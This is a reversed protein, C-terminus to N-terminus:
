WLCWIVAHIGMIWVFSELFGGTRIALANNPIWTLTDNGQQVRLAHTSNPSDLQGTFKVTFTMKFDEERGLYHQYQTSNMNVSGSFKLEMTTNSVSGEMITKEPWFFDTDHQLCSGARLRFLGDYQSLRPSPSQVTSANFHVADSTISESSVDLVMTNSANTRSVSGRTTTIRFLDPESACTDGEWKIQSYSSHINSVNADSQWAKFGIIFPNTPGKPYPPQPGIWAYGLLRLRRLKQCYPGATINYSLYAEGQFFSGDYITPSPAARAGGQSTWNRAHSPVLYTSSLASSPLQSGCGSTSSDDSGDSGGEDGSSGIGDGSNSDSDGDYDGGGRRALVGTHFTSLLFLLRALYGLPVM